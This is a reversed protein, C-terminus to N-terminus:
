DVSKDKKPSPNPSAHTSDNEDAWKIQITNPMLNTAQILEIAKRKPYVYSMLELFTKLKTKIMEIQESPKDYIVSELEELADLIGQIPELGKEELTEQLLLTGKNPLRKKRKKRM